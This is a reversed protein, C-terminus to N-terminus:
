ETGLNEELFEIVKDLSDEYHLTIFISYGFHYGWVINEARTQNEMYTIFDSACKEELIEMQLETLEIWYRIEIIKSKM